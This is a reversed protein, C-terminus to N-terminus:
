QLYADACGDALATAGRKFQTIGDRCIKEFEELTVLVRRRQELVFIFDLFVTRCFERHDCVGSQQSYAVPINAGTVLKRSRNAGFRPADLNSEQPTREEAM